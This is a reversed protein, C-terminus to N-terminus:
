QAASASLSRPHWEYTGVLCCERFGLRRYVNIGYPSSTLVAIRAGADRAHRIAAATMTTGIGRRRYRRSTVVYHVAAISGTLHLYCTAVPTSALYGVFMRLDGDPGYPLQRYTDFWRREIDAPAGSGWVRMWTRLSAEDTVPRIELDGTARPEDRVEALDLWMGPEDEVHRLGNNVLIERADVPEARLGVHWHFPLGRRRFHIVAEAVAAAYEQDDGSDPAMYVGNFEADAVGTDIWWLGDGGHRTAGPLAGLMVAFAAKSTDLLAAAGSPHILDTVGAL